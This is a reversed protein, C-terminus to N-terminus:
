LRKLHHLGIGIADWVNHQLSKAKPLWVSARENVDLRSEIRRCMVNKDVTGKWDRPRYLDAPRDVRAMVQGVVIAVDILDNPDGKLRSQRYVQPKEIALWDVKYCLSHLTVFGPFCCLDSEMSASLLQGDQWVAMGCAKVGPDVSLLLM